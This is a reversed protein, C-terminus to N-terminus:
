SLVRAMRAMPLATGLCSGRAGVHYGSSCVPSWSPGDPERVQLWQKYHISLNTVQAIPTPNTYICKGSCVCVNFLVRQAPHAALYTSLFYSFGFISFVYGRVELSLHSFLFLSTSLTM